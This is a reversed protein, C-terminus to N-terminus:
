LPVADDERASLSRDHQRSGDSRAQPSPAFARLARVTSRGSALSADEAILREYVDLYAAAMARVNFRREAAARVLRRDLGIVDPLMRVAEEVTDVVAGSVGPEVVEPVSGHRFALVPTGRAMAEVMVLGFPEPWDIPFLLAAAGGLFEDKGEEGIEGVFEVGAAGLRPEIEAAFYAADVADVKAAIKLPIGTSRAIEIARDVRKEPCIRGLFALYRGSEFRPEIADMPLGHPVTARWQLWPVPARQADSISVMRAERFEAFLRQYHPLDMRGHMTTIWPTSSRRMLPLHLTDLHFHILDYADADAFVREVELMHETLDDGGEPDLRLARERTAILRATTTTDGSAYLTVDHGQRVLEETLYHVVRETGGYTKPPVSEVLPSVQAIRM